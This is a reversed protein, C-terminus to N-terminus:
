APSAPGERPTRRREVIERASSGLLHRFRRIAAYRLTLLVAWLLFLSNILILRPWEWGSVLLVVSLAFGTAHLTTFDLGYRLRRPEGYGASVRAHGSTVFLLLSARPSRWPVIRFRVEGRTGRHVHAGRAGLAQEIRHLIVEVQHVTPEKRLRLSPM